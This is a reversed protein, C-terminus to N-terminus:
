DFADDQRYEELAQEEFYKPAVVSDDYRVQQAVTTSDNTNQAFAAFSFLCLLIYFQKTIM